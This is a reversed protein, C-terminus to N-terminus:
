TLKYHESFFQLLGKDGFFFSEALLDDDVNEIIKKDRDYGLLDRAASSCM